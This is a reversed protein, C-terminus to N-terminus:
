AGLRYVGVVQVTQVPHHGGQAQGRHIDDLASVDALLELLVRQLGDVRHEAGLLSQRSTVQVTDAYM